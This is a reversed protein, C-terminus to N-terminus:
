KKDDGSDNFFASFFSDVIKKNQENISQWGKEWSDNTFTNHGSKNSEFQLIAYSLYEMFSKSLPSTHMKIIYKLFEDSFVTYGKTEQELIIQILTSHTIDKESKADIVIFDVNEKILEAIEDLKIYCSTSTNYLRRNPYKKIVIQSKM